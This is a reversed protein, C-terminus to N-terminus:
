QSTSGLRIIAEIAADVEAETTFAGLSFRVLGRPFTGLTRHASPACHLGCRTMIGEKELAYAVLANDRGPFDLAIVGVRNQEDQEGYLRIGRVGKLGKIFRKTLETERAALADTGVSLIYDLAASLGYIGPMNMTGAELKDPMRKPQTEEDSLSGTGGTVLPRIISALRKSLLLAGIGSPGLLGKHGPVILADLGWKEFFIPIHGATQAADLAYLLKYKKCLEGVKKAPQLTGCVNSAHCLLLMKTNPQVFSPIADLDLRGFSDCPIKTYSIGRKELEHLPRMVANHEMSSILVHDGENLTGGLVMNCSMTAGSTIVVNKVEDHGFLSSLQERLRLVVSENDQVAAYDGRHLSAGNSQMYYVMAQTVSEPKPFSTAGNDM